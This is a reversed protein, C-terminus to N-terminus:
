SPFRGGESAFRAVALNLVSRFIVEWGQIQGPRRSQYPLSWCNNKGLVAADIVAAQVMQGGGSNSHMWCGNERYLFTGKKYVYRSGGSTRFAGTGEGEMGATMGVQGM